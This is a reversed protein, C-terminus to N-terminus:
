RSSRVCCRRRSGRWVGRRRGTRRLRELGAPRGRCRCTGARIRVDVLLSWPIRWGSVWSQECLRSPLCWGGLEHDVSHRLARGAVDWAGDNPRQVTGFEDCQGHAPREPSAPLMPPMITRSNYRVATRTNPQNGCTTRVSEAIAASSMTSHCSTAISRQWTPRAQRDQGSRAIRDARTRARGRSRHRCRMTV